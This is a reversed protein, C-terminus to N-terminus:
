ENLEKIIRKHNKINNSALISKSKFNIENGNLDSVVGGAEKVLILGAAYDWPRALLQWYGHQRGSSVNALDLAASGTRRFSKIKYIINNLNKMNKKVSDPVSIVFGTGYILNSFKIEDSVKYPKSNLTSGYNKIALFLEKTLPNYICGSIIEGNISGAISICFYPYKTIFNNTGDIPDIIWTIQSEDYINTGSEEAMFNSRPFDKLLEKIIIKEVALDTETVWEKKSKEKFNIRKKSYAKLLVKSSILAARKMVRKMKLAQNKTLNNM